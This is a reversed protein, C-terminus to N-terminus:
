LCPRKEVAGPSSLGSFWGAADQAEQVEISGLRYRRRGDHGDLPLAIRPTGIASGVSVFVEYRGPPVNAPLGFTARQEMTRAQGAPGGPLDRVNFHEDVLTLVVGGAPTKLTLAPHGGGYCPAVGTNAWKAQVQIAEGARAQAPWSVEAPMLRYGLRRNMRDILPRCEQLFERPWWHISAYSAHYVEMAEEYKSGDGWDGRQRSSGYHDSELVVPAVPWFVQAIDASKYARPGGRVLISDDRLTFNGKAAWGAACELLGPRDERYGSVLLDDNIAVYTKKFYKEHLGVHTQVMRPGCAQGTSRGTHGEGWIGFSGVDFFAIHPDGDYRRGAEALFRDLYHLFVPDDYVPEWYEVGDRRTFYLGKAGAQQLWQPAAYVINSHGECCSFRFAITKGAAIYRQAPGDVVSWDFQGPRPEIYCWALRLYVHSFGPFDELLDEPGLRTGYKALSNDYHFLGWGMGPNIPVSGNDVPRVVVQHDPSPSDSM